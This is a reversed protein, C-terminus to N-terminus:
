PAALAEALSVSSRLSRVVETRVLQRRYDASAYHDFLFERESAAHEGACTIAIESLEKGRLYGEATRARYPRGAAGTVAIASDKVRNADFALATAVGVVAYGSAPHRVKRYDFLSFRSFPIRIAVIIEDPNLATTMIDVFFEEAPIRRSGAASRTEIVADLALIVAPWDAAPDANAISGGITGRNRVQPDAIQAAVKRFIGDVGHLLESKLIEAHTTAAGITIGDEIAIGRLEKLRSIDILRTPSALRLKLTPILTHGGAVLKSGEPDEAILDIAQELSNARIYQFLAPIM